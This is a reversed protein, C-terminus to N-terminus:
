KGSNEFFYFLISTTNDPTQSFSIGSFVSTFFRTVHDKLYYKLSGKPRNQPMILSKGMFVGKSTFVDESLRKSM